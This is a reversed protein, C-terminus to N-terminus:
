DDNDDDEEIESLVEPSPTGVANFARTLASMLADSITRSAAIEEKSASIEILTVKM